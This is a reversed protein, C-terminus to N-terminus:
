TKIPFNSSSLLLGKVRRIENKISLVESNSTNMYSRYNAEASFHDKLTSLATKLIFTEEKVKALRQAFPSSKDEIQEKIEDTVKKLEESDRKLSEQGQKFSGLVTTLYNIRSRYYKQLRENVVKRIFRFLLAVSGAIVFFVLGRKFYTLLPNVLLKAIEEPSKGLAKLALSISEKSNGKRKVFSIRKHLEVPSAAKSLFDQLESSM